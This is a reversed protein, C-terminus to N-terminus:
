FGLDPDPKYDPNGYDVTDNLQQNQQKTKTLIKANGIITGKNGADREEKSISEVIMYDGYESNPTEILIADLYQGQKGQFLRAKDIKSVNISLSIM